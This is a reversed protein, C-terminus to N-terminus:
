KYKKFEHTEPNDHSCELLAKQQRKTEQGQLFLGGGCENSVNSCKNVELVKRINAHLGNLIDSEFKSDSKKRETPTQLADADGLTSPNESFRSKGNSNM